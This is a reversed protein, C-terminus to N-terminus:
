ASRLTFVHAEPRCYTRLHRGTTGVGRSVFLPVSTRDYYGAVYRRAGAPTFIPIGGPLCVQGGHSHGSLQLSVHSPLGEVFDPEHFLALLSKSFHGRMLFSPDQYGMLGDDLGALTVGGVEVTENRLLRVGYRDLVEAVRPYVGCWYDHNGFVAFVPAAVDALPALAERLYRVGESRRYTLFDGGLLVADVPESLAMKLADRTLDRLVPQDAHFDSLFAVKFGDADWRPLRLTRREFHLWNTSLMGIPAASAAVLVAGRKLLKRRSLERDSPENSSYESEM